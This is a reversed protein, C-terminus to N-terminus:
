ALPRKGQTRGASRPYRPTAIAKLQTLGQAIERQEADQAMREFDSAAKLMQDRATQVRLREAMTRCERARTRCRRSEPIISPSMTHQAALGGTFGINYFGDKSFWSFLRHDVRRFFPLGCWPILHDAERIVAIGQRAKAPWGRFRRLWIAFAPKTSPIRPRRPLDSSNWPMDVTISPLFHHCLSRGPRLPLDADRYKTGM